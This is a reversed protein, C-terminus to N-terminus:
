AKDCNSCCRDRNGTNWSYIFKLSGLQEPDNVLATSARGYNVQQDNATM